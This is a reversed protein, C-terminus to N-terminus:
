CLGLETATLRVRTEPRDPKSPPLVRRRSVYSGNSDKSTIRRHERFLLQMADDKKVYESPATSTGSMGSARRPNLSASDDLYDNIDWNDNDAGARLGDVISWVVHGNAYRHMVLM